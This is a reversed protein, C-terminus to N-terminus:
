SRFHTAFRNLYSVAELRERIPKEDKLPLVIWRKMMRGGMPTFTHDLVDALTTANEHPSSILELNRVTFRDLWVYKEEEIRGISTIHGLRSHQNESLYHLIAGAAVVGLKLGDIGFGKLSKTEFHRNLSENAFDHTFVWDELRFTYYRDSFLEQFEKSRNKQYVIETPEFGQILKDIHNL